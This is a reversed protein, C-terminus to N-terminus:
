NKGVALHFRKEKKENKEMKKIKSIELNRSTPHIRINSKDEENEGYM